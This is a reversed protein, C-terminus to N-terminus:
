VGRCPRAKPVTVPSARSPLAPTETHCGSVLVQLVKIEVENGEYLLCTSHMAQESVGPPGGLCLPDTLILQQGDGRTEARKGGHGPVWGPPLWARHGRWCCSARPQPGPSERPARCHNPTHPSPQARHPCGLLAQWHPRCSSRPGGASLARASSAWACSCMCGGAGCVRSVGTVERHQGPETQGEPTPDRLEPPEM